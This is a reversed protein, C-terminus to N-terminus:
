EKLTRLCFKVEDKAFMVEILEFNLLWKELFKDSRKFVCDTLVRWQLRNEGNKKYDEGNICSRVLFWVWSGHLVVSAFKEFAERCTAMDENKRFEKGEQMLKSDYMMIVNLLRMLKERDFRFAKILYGQKESRKGLGLEKDLENEFQGMLLKFSEGVTRLEDRNKSGSVREYLMFVLILDKLERILLKNDNHIEQIHV